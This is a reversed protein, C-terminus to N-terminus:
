PTIKPLNASFASVLFKVLVYLLLIWIAVILIPVLRSKKSISQTKTAEQRCTELIDKPILKISIYIGLPVILLDDLYGIVPIFDPILDIPSLAYGVTLAIFVKAFWPMGPHKYALYIVTLDARFSDAKVKWKKWIETSKM